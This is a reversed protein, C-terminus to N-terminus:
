RLTIDWNISLKWVVEMVFRPFPLSEVPGAALSTDVDMGDGSLSAKM